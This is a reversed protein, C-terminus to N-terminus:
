SQPRIIKELKLNFVDNSTSHGQKIGKTTSFHEEGGYKWLVTSPDDAGLGIVSYKNVVKVKSKM